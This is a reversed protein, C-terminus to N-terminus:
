LFHDIGNHEQRIFFLNMVPNSIGIDHKDIDERETVVGSGEGGGDVKLVKSDTM